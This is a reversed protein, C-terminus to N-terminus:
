GVWRNLRWEEIWASEQRGQHLWAVDYTVNLGTGRVNVALILGVIHGSDDRDITVQDGIDYTTTIQM